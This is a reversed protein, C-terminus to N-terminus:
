RNKGLRQRVARQREAWARKSAPCPKEGARRHRSYDAATGDCEKRPRGM